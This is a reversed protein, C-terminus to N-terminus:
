NKNVKKELAVKRKRYFPPKKSIGILHNFLTFVKETPTRNIADTEPNQPPRSLDRGYM